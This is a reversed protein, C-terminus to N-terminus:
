LFPLYTNDRPMRLMFLGFTEPHMLADTECYQGDQEQKFTGAM